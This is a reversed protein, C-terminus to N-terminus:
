LMYYSISISRTQIVRVHECAYECASWHTQRYHQPLTLATYHHSQHHDSFYPQCQVCVNTEHTKSKM